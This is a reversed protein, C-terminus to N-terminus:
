RSRTGNENEPSCTVIPSESSSRLQDFIPAEMSVFDGVNALIHLWRLQVLDGMMVRESPRLVAQWGAKEIALEMAQIEAQAESTVGQEQAEKCAMGLPLFCKAARPSPRRNADLRANVYARSREIRPPTYNRHDNEAAPVFLNDTKARKRSAISPALM